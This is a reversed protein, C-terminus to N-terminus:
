RCTDNFAFFSKTICLGQHRFGQHRLRVAAAIRPDAIRPDAFVDSEQHAVVHAPPAVHAGVLPAVHPAVHPAVNLFFM